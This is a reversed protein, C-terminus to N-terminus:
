GLGHFQSCPHTYISPTKQVPARNGVFVTLRATSLTNTTIWVGRLDLSALEQVFFSWALKRNEPAKKHPYPSLLPQLQGWLRNASRHILHKSDAVPRIFLPKGDDPQKNILNGSFGLFIASVRPIHLNSATKWLAASTAGLTQQRNQPYPTQTGSCTV